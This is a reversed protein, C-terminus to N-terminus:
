RKVRRVVLEEPDLIFVEVILEGDQVRGDIAIKKVSRGDEKVYIDTTFGGGSSRPGTAHKTKIGDAETVIWFNRM